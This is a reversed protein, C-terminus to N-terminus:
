FPKNKKRVKYVKGFGGQGLMNGESFNNTAAAIDGFSVFPLEINEDGLENPANSYGLIAKKLIDKSQRHKGSLFAIGNAILAQVLVSVNIMRQLSTARIRGRLKCIWILYMGAATLVLVSAMVPLVIKAVNKGKRTAASM